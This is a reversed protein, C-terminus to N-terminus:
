HEQVCAWEIEIRLVSRRLRRALQSQEIRDSAVSGGLAYPIRAAEIRTILLRLLETATM